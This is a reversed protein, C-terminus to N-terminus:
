AVIGLRVDVTTDAALAATTAVGILTNGTATTTCESNTNDWYVKAGQSVAQASKKALGFVGRTSVTVAAGNAADAVAVGFLSGVLVGAGSSVAAPATVTINDGEQVFNKM